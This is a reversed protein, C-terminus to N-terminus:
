YNNILVAQWEGKSEVERVSLANEEISKLIIDTDSQLIGSILLNGNTNLYQSLIPMTKLLVNRNINALIIDYDSSIENEDGLIIEIDQANNLLVNERANLVANREIEIGDIKSAGIKNALISLIGTGCGFDLVNKNLFDMKAMFEIMMYTTEHHGTGFAMKPDIIIDHITGKNMPHFSARVTCFNGISIPSFNSEWKKNWNVKPVEVTSYSFDLTSSLHQIQRQVSNTWNSSKFFIKVEKDEWLSDIPLEGLFALLIDRKSDDVQCSVEIFNENM